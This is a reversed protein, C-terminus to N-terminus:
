PGPIVVQSHSVVRNRPHIVVGARRSASRTADSTAPELLFGATLDGQSEMRTVAETKEQPQKDARAQSGAFEATELADSAAAVERGFSSTVFEDCNMIWPGSRERRRIAPM